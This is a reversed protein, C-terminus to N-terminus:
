THGDGGLGVAKNVVQKDVGVRLEAIDTIGMCQLLSISQQHHVVKKAQICICYRGAIRSLFRFWHLGLDERVGQGVWGQAVEASKNTRHGKPLKASQCLPHHPPSVSATLYLERFLNPCRSFPCFPPVGKSVGKRIAQNSGRTIRKTKSPQLPRPM